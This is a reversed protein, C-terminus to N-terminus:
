NYQNSEHSNQGRPIIAPTKNKSNCLEFIGFGCESRNSILQPNGLGSESQCCAHTQPDWLGGEPEIIQQFSEYFESFDNYKHSCNVVFFSYQNFDALPLPAYSLTYSDDSALPVLLM